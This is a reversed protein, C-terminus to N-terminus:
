QAKPSGVVPAPPSSAASAASDAIGASGQPTSGWRSCGGLAVTSVVALAALLRTMRVIKM